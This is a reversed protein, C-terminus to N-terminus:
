GEVNLKGKAVLLQRIHGISEIGIIEEMSLRDGLAREIEMVLRVQGLSDLNPVDALRMADDLSVGEDLQLANRLIEVVIDEAMTTNLRSGSTIEVFKNHAAEGDAGAQFTRVCSL